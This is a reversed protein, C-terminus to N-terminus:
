SKVDRQIFPSLTKIANTENKNAEKIKELVKDQKKQAALEREINYQEKTKNYL